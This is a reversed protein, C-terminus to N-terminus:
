MLKYIFKYSLSTWTEVVTDVDGSYCGLLCARGQRMMLSGNAESCFVTMNGGGFTM